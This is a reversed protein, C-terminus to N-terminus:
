YIPKFSSSKLRPRQEELSRSVVGGKGSGSPELVKGSRFVDICNTLCSRSSGCSSCSLLKRYFHPTLPLPHYLQIGYRHSYIDELNGSRPYIRLVLTAISILSTQHVSLGRVRTRKTLWWSFADVVETHKEEELHSGCLGWFLWTWKEIREVINRETATESSSQAVLCPEM